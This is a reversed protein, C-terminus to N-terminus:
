INKLFRQPNVSIVIGSNKESLGSGRAVNYAEKETIFDSPSHADTNVLLDAKVENAVMAVHGNSLCHGKRASLELFIGNEKALEAEEVTLLGPHALIDVEPIKVAALNTGKPVPEVLTEGHVIIVKAGLKKSKKILDELMDIPSHTIEIGPLVEIDVYKNLDECAPVLNSLILELNSKDAHDTIAVAKHGLISCRQAIEAPILEGDSFISHVHFDFM